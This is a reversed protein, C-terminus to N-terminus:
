PTLLFPGAKVGLFASWPKTYESVSKDRSIFVATGPLGARSHYTKDEIDMKGKKSYNM